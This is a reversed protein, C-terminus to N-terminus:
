INFPKPIHMGSWIGRASTSGPGPQIQAHRLSFIRNGSQRLLNRVRLEVTDPRLQKLCVSKERGTTYIARVVPAKGGRASRVIFETQPNARALRTISTRLYERMGEATVDSQHYEFEMRRCPQTFHLYGPVTYSRVSSPPVYFPPPIKVPKIFSIPSPRM